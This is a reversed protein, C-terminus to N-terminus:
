SNKTSNYVVYNAQNVFWVSGKNCNLVVTPTINNHIFGRRSVTFDIAKTNSYDNFVGGEKIWSLANSISTDKITGSNDSLYSVVCNKTKFRFGYVWGIGDKYYSGFDVLLSKTKIFDKCLNTISENKLVVNAITLKSSNETSSATLSITQALGEKNYINFSVNAFGFVSTLTYGDSYTLDVKASFSVNREDINDFMGYNKTYETYNADAVITIDNATLDNDLSINPDYNFNDIVTGINTKYGCFCEQHKIGNLDFTEERDVIWKLDHPEVTFKKDCFKTTLCEHYHTKENYSYSKSAECKHFRVFTRITITSFLAISTILILLTAVIRFLKKKNM